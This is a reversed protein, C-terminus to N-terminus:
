FWEEGGGTAGLNSDFGERISTAESLICIHTILATQLPSYVPLLTLMSERTLVVFRSQSTLTARKPLSTSQGGRWCPWESPKLPLIRMLLSRIDKPSKEMRLLELAIPQSGHAMGARYHSTSNHYQHKPLTVQGWLLSSTPSRM